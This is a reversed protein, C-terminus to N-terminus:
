RRGASHAVRMGAGCILAVGALSVPDLVEGWVLFGLLMAWVVLSYRFPTVVGLDSERCAAILALNGFATCVAAVALCGVASPAVAEWRERAGLAVGALCVAATTLVAVAASSVTAPLRRTVLDRAALSAACLFAYGIGADLQGSGAWPQAVMLVGVFGVLAAGARAGRWPEWGLMASALGIVLPASMMVATTTALPASALALVSTLATTVELVCRLALLRGGALRTPPLHAARAILLGVFTAFAGRVALVQGPPLTSATLKVFTDNVAYCAMAALMLVIGRRNALASSM